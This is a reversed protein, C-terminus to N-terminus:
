STSRDMRNLKCLRVWCLDFFDQGEGKDKLHGLKARVEDAGMGLTVGMFDKYVPARTIPMKSPQKLEAGGGKSAIEDHVDQSNTTQQATASVSALLFLTMVLLVLLCSEIFRRQIKLM